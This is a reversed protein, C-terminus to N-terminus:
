CANNLKIIKREVDSRLDPIPLMYYRHLISLRGLNSSERDWLCPNKQQITTMNTM